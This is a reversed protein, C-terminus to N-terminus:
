SADGWSAYLSEVFWVCWLHRSLRRQFLLVGRLWRKPDRVVTKTKLAPSFGQVYNGYDEEERLTMQDETQASPPPNGHWLGVVITGGCSLGADGHEPLRLYRPLPPLHASLWRNRSPSILISPAFRNPQASPIWLISIARLLNSRSM